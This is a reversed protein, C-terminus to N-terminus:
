KCMFKGAQQQGCSTGLLGCRRRESTGDWFWGGGLGGGGGKDGNDTALAFAESCSRQGWGGCVQHTFINACGFSSPCTPKGVLGWSWDQCPKSELGWSWDQNKTQKSTKALLPRIVVM